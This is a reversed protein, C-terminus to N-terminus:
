QMFRPLRELVHAVDADVKGKFKAARIRNRQRTRAMMKAHRDALQQKLVADNMGARVMIADVRRELSRMDRVINTPATEALDEQKQASTVELEITKAVPAVKTFAAMKVAKAAKAAADKEDRKKAASAAGSLLRNIFHKQGSHGSKAMKWLKKAERTKPRYEPVLTALCRRMIYGASCKNTEEMGQSRLEAARVDLDVLKLILFWRFATIIYVINVTMLIITLTLGLAGPGRAAEQFFFLGMWLTFFSVLLAWMEAQHLTEHESTVRVYPRFHMHGVLAILNVFAGTLAQIETGAGTLFVAVMIVSTKRIATLVEWFYFRKKFGLFLTGFWFRPIKADLSKRYKYLYYAAAFPLGIVYAWLAPFFLGIVWPIHVSDWCQLDLDMQLYRNRGVTQCAVLKFASKTVTPYLLYLVTVATAVFKDFVTIDRNLDQKKKRRRHKKKKLSLKHEEEEERKLEAQLESMSFKRSNSKKKLLRKKMENMQKERKKKERKRKDWNFQATNPAEEKAHSRDKHRKRGAVAETNSIYIEIRDPHELLPDQTTKQTQLGGGFAALAANGGRGSAGFAALASSAKVSTGGTGEKDDKGRGNQRRYSRGNSSCCAVM